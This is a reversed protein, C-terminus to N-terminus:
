HTVASKAEVRPDSRYPAQVRAIASRNPVRAIIVSRYPRQVM